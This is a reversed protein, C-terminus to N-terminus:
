GRKKPKPDRETSKEVTVVTHEDGPVGKPEGAPTEDHEIPDGETTYEALGAHVLETCRFKPLEYIDGMRAIDGVGLVVGTLFKVKATRVPPGSSKKGQAM